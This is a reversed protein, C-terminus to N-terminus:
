SISKWSSARKTFGKKKPKALGAEGQDKIRVALQLLGDLDLTALEDASGQRAGETPKSVIQLAFDASTPSAQGKAIYTVAIGDHGNFQNRGTGRKWGCENQAQYKRAGTCTPTGRGPPAAM